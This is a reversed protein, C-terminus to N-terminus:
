IRIKNYIIEEESILNRFYLYSLALDQLAGIKFCKKNNELYQIKQYKLLYTCVVKVKKEYNENMISIVPYITDNDYNEIGLLEKDLYKYKSDTTDKKIIEQEEKSKKKYLIENYIGQSTITYRQYEEKSINIAYQDYLIKNEATNDVEKLPYMFPKEEDYKPDDNHYFSIKFDLDKQKLEQTLKRNFCKLQKSTYSIKVAIHYHPRSSNTHKGIIMKEIKYDLKKMVDHIRSYFEYLYHTTFLTFTICTTM